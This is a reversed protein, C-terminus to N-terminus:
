CTKDEGLDHDLSRLVLKNCPLCRDMSDAANRLVITM